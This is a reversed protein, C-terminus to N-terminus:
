SSFFMGGNVNLTQGTIYSAADSALFVVTDAVEAAVGIRGAPISAVKERGAPSDIEAATMDTRVLGPSVANSTLGASSYIRALSRTLGILGAKASAYHVQRAGGWQGGVSAINVVRGFGREAMGPMLEQCWIFPGRLNTGLMLDWDADDIESFPKEQSIAANNVLIDISGLSEEIEAVAKRVDAREGECACVAFAGVGLERARGAVERARDESRRWTFAVDAGARALAMVIEAGIGRSGGTVLAVRGSLTM